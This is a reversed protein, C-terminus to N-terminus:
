NKKSFHWAAFIAGGVLLYVYPPQLLDTLSFSVQTAPVDITIPQLAAAVAPAIPASQAIPEQAPGSQAAGNYTSGVATMVGNLMAYTPITGVKGMDANALYIQAGNYSQGPYAWYGAPDTTAGLGSNDFTRKARM